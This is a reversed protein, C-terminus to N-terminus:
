IWRSFVYQAVAADSDQKNQHLFRPTMESEEGAKTWRELIYDRGGTSRWFVEKNKM